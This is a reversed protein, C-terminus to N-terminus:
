KGGNCRVTAMNYLDLSSYANFIRNLKRNYQEQNVNRNSQWISTKILERSFDTSLGILRLAKVIDSRSDVAVVNLAIGQGDEIDRPLKKIRNDTYLGFHFPADSIDISEGFGLTFFLIDEVKTLGFKYEGKQIDSVEEERLDPLFLYLTFGNNYDLKIGEQRYNGPYIEGVELSNM